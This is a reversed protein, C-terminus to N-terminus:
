KGNSKGETILKPPNLNQVGTGEIWANNDVRRIKKCKICQLGVLKARGHQPLVKIAFHRSGCDGCDLTLAVRPIILSPKNIPKHHILETM